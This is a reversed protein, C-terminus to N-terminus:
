FSRCNRGFCNKHCDLASEIEAIDGRLYMRIESLLFGALIICLLFQLIFSFPKRFIQIFVRDGDTYKTGRLNTVADLDAIPPENLDGFYLWLSFGWFM